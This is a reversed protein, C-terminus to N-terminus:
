GAREEHARIVQDLSDARRRLEADATTDVMEGGRRERTCFDGAEMKAAHALNEDRLKRFYDLMEDILRDTM